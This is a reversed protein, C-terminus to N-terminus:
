PRGWYAMAMASDLQQARQFAELARPYEFLHLLLVGQVFASDAAPSNTTVPFSVTGLGAITMAGTSSAEPAPACALTAALVLSAARSWELTPHTSM